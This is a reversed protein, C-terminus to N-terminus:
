KKRNQSHKFKIYQRVEKQDQPSLKKYQALFAIDEKTITTLNLNKNKGTFLKLFHHINNSLMVPGMAMGGGGIVTVGDETITLSGNTSRIGKDNITMGVLNKTDITILPTSTQTIVPVTNDNILESIEIGYFKTLKVLIEINPERTSREYHSYAERTVSLYDAIEQQSCGKQQRLEVLKASLLPLSM